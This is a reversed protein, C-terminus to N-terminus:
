WSSEEGKSDNRLRQMYGKQYCRYCKGKAYLRKVEKKCESCIPM